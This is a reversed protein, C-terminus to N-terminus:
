AAGRHPAQGPGARRVDGLSQLELPTRLRLDRQPFPIEIGERVFAEHIAAHLDHTVDLREDMDGLFVRLVFNLSSDGFEECSAFAPPEKLVAPHRNAVELLLRRVREADTGYAVGVRVVVRNVKDSLTWNLVRGTIFEKNPVIYEKRDWDTISTARMQIRSVAGTVEDVTVIDGVRIPRELLLILGSVFNAFMEQLGFALGFTLATALWQVQAWRLGITSCATVMGVMVIAYSVLTTIAYRVSPELPLRQLLTLELLGPGNRFLVFAGFAVLIALGLDSLTVVELGSPASLTPMSEAGGDAPPTPAAAVAVGPPASANWLPYTDLMGLAPLVEVWILWLGVVSAVFYGASVLRRTQLNHASLEGHATSVGLGAAMSAAPLEADGAARQRSKEISLQRRRLLIWRLVLERALLLGTLFCATAFLRWALVQATYYFGQYALGLLALPGTAALWPWLRGLRDIWGGPHFAVHGRLLGGRSLLRFSFMALLAMGAMFLARELADRGLGPDMAVLTGTLMAIPLGLLTLWRLRRSLSQSVAPPWAFHAEALGRPRCVQRLVELPHWLVALSLLGRGVAHPFEGEVSASLLRWAVLAAVGPWASAILTTLAAARLTPALTRCNARGAADGAASLERRLRGGRVVVVAFVAGFTAYLGPRRAADVALTAAVSGWRGADVLWPDSPALSLEHWLPRGSRIWLVREDIFQEYREVLAILQRETTDLEVLADFYGSTTRILAGLYERKRQLLDRAAGELARVAAPGDPAAEALIAAVPSDIDGISQREDEHEFLAYQTDDILVRRETVADHRARLDPLGSRQKRLLAGVSSTLGVSEVKARALKFQRSLLDVAEKASKVEVEAETLRQAVERTTEALEQNRDALRRLGPAAVISEFRAKRVSEEAAADRALKVADLLAQLRKEALATQRAAVDAQLRLLEASDEADFKALEGELAASEQELAHRQARVEAAQAAALAPHAGGGPAATSLATQKEQISAIRARAEKRRQARAQPEAEAAAQTAKRATLALEAKALSREMDALTLDTSVTAPAIALEELKQRLEAALAPAGEAERALAERRAALEAAQQAAAHAARYAEVTQRRTEEDLDGAGEAERALRELDDVGVNPELNASAQVVEDPPGDSLEEGWAAVASALSLSAILAALQRTM